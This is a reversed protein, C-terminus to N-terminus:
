RAGTAVAGNGREGLTVPELGAVWEEIESRLWGTRNPGVKRRRPFHGDKEYRWITTEALGTIEKVARLNLIEM